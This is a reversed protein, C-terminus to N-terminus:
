LLLQPKNALSMRASNVTPLANEKIAIFVMKALPEMKNTYMWHATLPFGMAISQCTVAALVQEASHEQKFSSVTRAANELHVTQVQLLHVTQTAVLIGEATQQHVVTVNSEM